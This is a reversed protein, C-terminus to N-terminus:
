VVEIRQYAALPIRQGFYVGGDYVRNIPVGDIMVLVQQGFAGSGGRLEIKDVMVGTQVKTVHVGPLSNVADNLTRDGKARWEEAAIVSVSAPADLPNQGYGVAANVVRVELLEELSMDFLSRREDAAAGFAGPPAVGLLALRFVRRMFAM